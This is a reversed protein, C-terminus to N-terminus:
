RPPGVVLAAPESASPLETVSPRRAHRNAHQENVVMLQDALPQAAREVPRAVELHDALGARHGLGLVCSASCRGSTTM